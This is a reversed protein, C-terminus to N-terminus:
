TGAKAVNVLKAATPDYMYSTVSGDKVRAVAEDIVFLPVLFWEEPQVPHGYPRLCRGLRGRVAQWDRLVGM